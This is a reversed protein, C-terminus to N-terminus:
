PQPSSQKQLPVQPQNVWRRRGTMHDPLNHHQCSDPGHLLTPCAQPRQNMRRRPLPRSHLLGNGFSGGEHRAHNQWARDALGLLPSPHLQREDDNRTQECGPERAGTCLPQTEGMLRSPISKWQKAQYANYEVRKLPKHNRRTQGRYAKQKQGAKRTKCM